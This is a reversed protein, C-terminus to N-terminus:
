QQHLHIGHTSKIFIDTGESKLVIYGSNDISGGPLQHYTAFGLRILFARMIGGHTVILINKGLHAVAVERIFTILRTTIEEDSEIEPFLKHHFRDKDALSERRALLDKLEVNLDSWLRGELRGFFRERILKTTVVALKHELAIIRATERARGLDSSYAAAFKISKLKRALHKAQVRGEKTLPSDSQGQMRDAINWETEGHRILYITTLLDM